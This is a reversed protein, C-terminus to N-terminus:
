ISGELITGVKLDQAIDVASLSTERFAFSSTRAAVSLGNMGALLNIVEEAIGNGLYQHAKGESMDVFPLVAVSKQSYVMPASQSEQTGSVTQGPGTNDIGTDQFGQYLALVAVVGLLWYSATRVASSSRKYLSEPSKEQEVNEEPSVDIREVPAILRYGSGRIVAIYPDDGKEEGLAKRLLLVRKNVTGRDVVLGAWVEEELQTTSVVNPAHRVLSLLLKFSLRPVPVITGNRSVEQTGADLLLDGIRYCEFGVSM